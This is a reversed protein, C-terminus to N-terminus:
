FPPVGHQLDFLSNLFSKEHACASCYTFESEVYSDIQVM